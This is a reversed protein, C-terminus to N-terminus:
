KAWPLELSLELLMCSLRKLYTYCPRLIDTFALCFNVKNEKKNNRSLLNLRPSSVRILFPCLSPFRYSNLLYVQPHVMKKKRSWNLRLCSSTPLTFFYKRCHHNSLFSYKALRAQLTCRPTIKDRSFSFLILMYFLAFILHILHTSSSLPWPFSVHRPFLPTSFYNMGAHPTWAILFCLLAHFSLFFSLSLLPRLIILIFISSPFFSLGSLYLSYFISYSLSPSLSFLILFFRCSFPFHRLIVIYFTLFPFPSFCFVSLVPSFFYFYLTLFFFTRPFLYSPISATLSALCTHCFPTFDRHHDIRHKLETSLWRSKIIGERTGGNLPEEVQDYFINVERERLTLVAATKIGKRQWYTLYKKAHLPQRFYCFYLVKCINM